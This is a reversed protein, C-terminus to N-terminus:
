HQGAGSDAGSADDESTGGVNTDETNTSAPRARQTSVIRKIRDAVETSVQGTITTPKGSDLRDIRDMEVAMARNDSQLMRLIEICKIADRMRGSAQAMQMMDMVHHALREMGQPMEYPKIAGIRLMRKYISLDSGSQPLWLEKVGSEPALGMPSGGEGTDGRDSAGHPHAGVDGSRVDQRVKDPRDGRRDSGGIRHLPPVGSGESDGDGDVKRKGAM